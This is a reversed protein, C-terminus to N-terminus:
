AMGIARAASLVGQEAAARVQVPDGGPANINQITINIDGAGQNPIITGPSTPVFREPGQEGVWYSGGPFVPGGEARKPAMLTSPHYTGPGAGGEAMWAQYQGWWEALSKRLNESQSYAYAFAAALALVAIIVVGIPNLSMALNLAAQAGTAIATAGSQIALAAAHALAAGKAIGYVFIAATLVGVIASQVVLHDRITSYIGAIVSGMVGAADGVLKFADKLKDFIPVGETAKGLATQMTAAFGGINGWVEEWRINGWQTVLWTTLETARDGLGGFFDGISSWVAPWDIAAWQNGLWTGVTGAIDGLASGIGGAIDGAKQWITVWDIQGFGEGIKGALVPIQLVVWSFLDGLKSQIIPLAAGILDGLTGALKGGAAGLSGLSKTLWAGFDVKGSLVDGLGGVIGGITGLVGKLSRVVEDIRPGITPGFLARMLDFTNGARFYNFFKGVWDAATGLADGFGEIWPQVAAFARPLGQAFGSILPAIVPLLQNGIKTKIDEFSASIIRQSNAMGTSTRAFDGQAATTQKLIISYRAQIKASEGLEGAANALGLKLGEAKVQEENMAVGLARLPEAEGVLGARLKELADEPRINHFSALDSGLTVIKTSLDGAEKQGLGMATFLNGFQGVANMAQIQSQGLGQAATATFAKVSDAAAGFVVDVKNAAENLDSALGVGLADGLSTVAQKVVGLGMGALGLKGLGTVLGGIAGLPATFLSGLKGFAGQLHGTTKDAEERTHAMGRDYDATDAAVHAMIKGVEIAM